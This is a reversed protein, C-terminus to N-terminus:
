KNSKIFQSVIRFGDGRLPDDAPIRKLFNVAQTALSIGVGLVQLPTEATPKPRVTEYAKKVSIKADLMAQKTDDDAESMVVNIRSVTQQGVGSIEAVEENVDVPTITAKHSNVYPKSLGGKQGGAKRNEDARAKLVSALRQAVLVRMPDTLNRRALQLRLMYEKAESINAFSKERISPAKAADAGLENRWISYRNHGDVLVGRGLWVVIEDTFGERLVSAVLEDRESKQQKPLMQSLHEDISVDEIRM